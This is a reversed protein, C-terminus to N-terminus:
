ISQLIQTPLAAGVKKLLTDLLGIEGPLKKINNASLHLVKLNPISDLSVILEKIDINQQWIYSFTASKELLHFHFTM